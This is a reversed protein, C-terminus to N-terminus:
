SRAARELRDLGARRPEPRWPHRPWLARREGLEPERPLAGHRAGAHFSFSVTTLVHVSTREPSRASDLVETAETALLMKGPYADYVAQVHDFDDKKAYWHFAMGDTYNASQEERLNPWPHESPQHPPTPPIANPHNDSPRMRVKADGLIADAWRSLEDKNHDYRIFSAM